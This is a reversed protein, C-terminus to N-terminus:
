WCVLSFTGDRQRCDRVFHLRSKPKELLHRDLDYAPPQTLFLTNDDRTFYTAVLVIAIAAGVGIASYIIIETTNVAEARRPQAFSFSFFTVLVLALVTIKQKM